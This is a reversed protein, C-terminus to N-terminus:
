GNAPECDEPHRKLGTMWDEVKDTDGDVQRLIAITVLEPDFPLRTGDYNTVWIVRARCRKCESSM